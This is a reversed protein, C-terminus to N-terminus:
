DEEVSQLRGEFLVDLKERFRLEYPYDNRYIGKDFESFFIAVIIQACAYSDFALDIEGREKGREIVAAYISALEARTALEIDLHEKSSYIEYSYALRIDNAPRDADDGEGFFIHRTGEIDALMIALIGDYLGLSDDMEAAFEKLHEVSQKGIEVLFDGKLPYHRYLTSTSIDAAKAIDSLTTAEYGQSLFLETAVKFIRQKTKSSCVYKRPAM